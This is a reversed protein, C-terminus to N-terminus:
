TLSRVADCVDEPGNSCKGEMELKRCPCTKCRAAKEGTLYSFCCTQRIRILEDLDDVYTKETYFKNIPNRNYRGFLKGEAKKFIFDLDDAANPTSELKSEYLWLMYIAVNEWLILKSVGTTKALMEIVPNIHSTFLDAIGKQFLTQRDESNWAVSQTNKLYFKPLWKPEDAPPEFFINEPRVDLKKNWASMTYLAIVALFAYRKMFVSAAVKDSDTQFTLKLRQIFSHMEEPDLLSNASIMGEMPEDSFRFGELVAKEGASVFFHSDVAM